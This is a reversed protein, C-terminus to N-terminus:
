TGTTLANVLESVNGQADQVRVTITKNSALTHTDFVIANASQSTFQGPAYTLNLSTDSSILRVLTVTDLATGNLTLAGGLMPLTTPSISTLSLAAAVPAPPAPPAPPPPPATYTFAGALTARVGGAYTVTIDVTGEDHYPASASISGDPHQTYAALAGGFTVSAIDPLANSVSIGVAVACDTCGSSPTVSTIAPTIDAFQLPYANSQGAATYVVLSQEGASAVVPSAVVELGGAQCRVSVGQNGIYAQLTDDPPCLNGGTVTIPWGGSLPLRAPSASDIVPAGFRVVRLTARSDATGGPGSVSVALSDVDVAPSVARITNDSVVEFAAASRNGFRVASAETFGSGTIEVATGGAAAITDRDFGLIQPAPLWSGYAFARPRTSSGIATRVTLDHVSYRVGPPTVFTIRTPSVQRFDVAKRGLLVRSADGLNEGIVLVRTGGDVTGVNPTLRTVRPVAEYRYTAAASSGGPAHVVVDVPGPNRGEPTTVTILNDGTVSVNTAPANGVSVRSAGTFGTGYIELRSGGTLPGTVPTLRLIEPRGSYLYAIDTLTQTSTASGQGAPRGYTVRPSVAGLVDGPPMLFNLETDSVHTLRTVSAGAFTIERVLDLGWGTATVRNGGALRGRAPSLATMGVPVYWYSLHTPAWAFANQGDAGRVMIKLSIAQTGWQDVGAAPPTTFALENASIVEVPAEAVANGLRAAFVQPSAPTGFNGVGSGRIIVRTGGTVPGRDRSITSVDPLVTVAQDGVVDGIVTTVTISHSGIPLNPPTAVDLWSGDEARASIVAQAGSVTVSSASALNTGNIRASRTQARWQAPVVSTFTPGSSYRVVGAAQEGALTFVAGNPYVLRLQRTLGMRVPNGVAAPSVGRMETDSVVVLDALAAWDDRESAGTLLQVRTVGTFGRGRITVPTGGSVMSAPRGLEPGLNTVPLAQFSRSNVDVGEPACRMADAPGTCAEILYTDPAPLAPIAFSATWPDASTPEIRRSYRALGGSASVRIATLSDINYGEARVAGGDITMGSLGTLRIDGPISGAIYSQRYPLLIPEASRMRGGAAPTSDFVTVPYRGAALAPVRVSVQASAQSTIPLDIVAGDPGSLQVRDISSLGAGRLTFQGGGVPAPQPGVAAVTAPAAAYEYTFADAAVARGSATQISVDVVERAGSGSGQPALVTVRGLDRASIQARKGGFLVEVPEDEGVNQTSITVSRRREVETDWSAPDVATIRPAFVYTFAKRATVLTSGLAVVVDVTEDKSSAPRDPVQVLLDRNDISIIRAARGGIRVATVDQPRANALTVRARKADVNAFWTSPSVSEIAPAWLYTFSDALVSAGLATTLRVDVTRQDGSAPIDPVLVQIPLANADGVRTAPVGGFTVTIDDTPRVNATVLSVTPRRDIHTAWTSTSLGTLLPGWQYTFANKLTTEGRDTRVTVAVVSASINTPAAIAPVVATLRGGDTTVEPSEIDGFIVSTGARVLSEGRLEVTARRELHTDWSAPAVSTLVPVGVEPVAVAHTSVVLVGSAGLSFAAMTAMVKSWM